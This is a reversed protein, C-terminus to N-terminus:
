KAGPLVLRQSGPHLRVREGRWDFWGSVDPPLTVHALLRGGDRQYTVVINGRPHPMSAALSRLRGLHPAIAVAAFAPAASEIGAVTHLLDWAPHASWAHCDSRPEGPTEAFTTLGDALMQRWPGLQELYLDALGAKELARFLYFKFYYSSQILSPDRLVAEMVQRQQARPVADALVALINAQQSFSRKEPTDALLSKEPNWCLQYVARSIKGALTSDRRAQEADGFANELDAAEQLAIAFQLSLVASQGGSAQPPVGDRFGEAWDVFPWWPVRGLLSSSSLRREHWALVERVNPLMPRLEAIEGRYWWLDHMMGIWYLSFGPIYQPLASPYRSETLGDSMQSDGILQLANKMLRDDGSLYLSILSQIRTDGVYQLQEYYPSDMYTEHACLRATRWAVRWIQQLAPDDSQFSANQQFPYATFEARLVELTLPSEQTRIDVQLFRYARWWLPSFMRHQGGAPLFEDYIGRIAKGATQNRNGKKGDPTVLAEAYTLRVRSGAGGSVVLEPYATTEFTQDVLISVTSHAPVLLPANGNLFGPSVSIGSARVIRQLRQPEEQQAPLSDSVLLWPSHTDQMGRPGAHGLTRAPQWNSDDYNEDQWGWPFRSGDVREGLGAAYYGEVQDRSLPILARSLDLYTKWSADSNLVAAPPSAAQLVFGIRKGMQAMPAADADNWVEAALLNNGPHIAPSLDVTEFRWHELDGRSPGRSVLKGNVFLQYRNDASVYVVFKGKGPPVTFQKRLDCVAPEHAPAQPCTIWQAPWYGTLLDPSQPAGLLPCAVALLFLLGRLCCRLRTVNM